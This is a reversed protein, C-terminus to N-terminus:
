SQLIRLLKAQLDLPLEGIEDLFISGGNARDFLGKRFQVAGTFAGKEHGFLESEILDKPLTACNIKVFPQNSRSSKKHIFNAFIEKGVGTEGELLLSTGTRAVKLAKKITYQLADSKGIVEHHIHKLNIEDTLQLNEKELQNKLKNIEKLSQQENTIDRGVSLTGQKIGYEDEVIVNSWVIFLENGTKDLIPNKYHAYKPNSIDEFVGFTEQKIAKPVFKEFWNTGITEEQSFGTLKYF